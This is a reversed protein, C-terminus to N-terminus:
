EEFDTEIITLIEVWLDIYQQSFKYDDTQFETKGTIVYGVQIDEGSKTDRYMASKNKLANRSIEIYYQNEVTCKWSELAQQVNRATVKINPICKSDIYWRKCNYEKM